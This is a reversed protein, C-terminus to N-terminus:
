KEQPLRDKNFIIVTLPIKPKDLYAYFSQWAGVKEIRAPCTVGIQFVFAFCIDM